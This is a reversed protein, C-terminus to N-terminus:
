SIRDESAVKWFCYHLLRTHHHVPAGRERPNWVHALRRTEFNSSQYGMDRFPLNWGPLADM